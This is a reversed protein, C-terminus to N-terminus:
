NNIKNIVSRLHKEVEPEIETYKASEILNKALTRQTRNKISEHKKIQNMIFNLITNAEAKLKNSLKMYIEAKKSLDESILRNIEAIKKQKYYETFSEKFKLLIDKEINSFSQNKTNQQYESIRKKLGEMLEESHNKITKYNNMYLKAKEQLKISLNENHESLQKKTFYSKIYTILQTFLGIEDHHTLSSRKEFNIISNPINEKYPKKTNQIESFIKIVCIILILFVKYIFKM